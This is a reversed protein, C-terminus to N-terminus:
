RRKSAPSCFIFRGSITARKRSRPTLRSEALSATLTMGDSCLRWRPSRSPMAILIGPSFHDLKQRTDGSMQREDPGDSKVRHGRYDWRVSHVAPSTVPCKGIGGFKFHMQQINALLDITIANQALKATLQNQNVASVLLIELALGAAFRYRLLQGGEETMSRWELDRKQHHCMAMRIMHAAEWFHHGLRSHEFHFPGQHGVLPEAKAPFHSRWVGDIRGVNSGGHPSQQGGQPFHRPVPADLEGDDEGYREHCQHRGIVVTTRRFAAAARHTSGLSM